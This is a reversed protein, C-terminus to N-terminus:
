ILLNRLGLPLLLLDLTIELSDLLLTVLQSRSHFLILPQRTAQILLILPHNPQPLPRSALLHILQELLRLTPFFLVFLDAM